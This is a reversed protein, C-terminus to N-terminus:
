ITIEKKGQIKYKKKGIKIKCEESADILYKNEYKKIVVIAPLDSKIEIEDSNLYKGDGLFYYNCNDSKSIVAYVGQVEVDGIIGKANNNEMSIILDERKNKHIVKIAAAGESESNIDPFAVSEIISPENKTVPEFISVFPKTWAEGNQRAVYTLTPQDSINYPMGETRCLGETFPSLATFVERDKMGKMWMQMTVDNGDPMNITYYGKVDKSTKTSRKDFIYSYAYLHAGAFALEQTPQLNLDNDEIDVLKFEQGMNHYFYDHMKDGGNIKRSRFIDVYYGFGEETTIISNLRTQKAHSEPEIFIVDSYNIGSIFDKSESAPYCSTLEFGHNSKMIPYSSVGDVCVTNHSPFQGYYELYDLGSYLTKGIGADPALPYGKGYLEMSIGNAHMHNGESGNLSIMLSREKDMGNRQVLWSVNPAWFTNSVYEEINGAPIDTDIILPKENFFTSIDVRSQSQNNMNKEFGPNFLRLLATFKQEQEKKNNYQANKIMGEFIDTRLKHPHTDGFGVAIMNPFLYQPTVEVAKEIIPFYETLDIGFVRDFINMFNVYDYVVNMSYGPSESWIGNDQDFGYEALKSLSWQRISSDFLVYNIYYERGKEDSYNSNNQLVMAITLINHAQILNWNNHPVGNSIINEAWKKLAADYIAIREPYNREIYLHLFDYLSTIPALISEHIVEFSTMGVLTQQHGNNLDHPIDRYYIGQLYTDLVNFAMDGYKSDETLWWMFACDRAVYMIDRNADAIQCGTKSISAWEMPAGPLSRNHMWVGRADECYPIRDEIKPRGYITSHNRAGNFMVTPVVCTDGGSKEYYEGKIFVSKAKSNWHMMLRSSLWDANNEAHFDTKEKLKIFINNAWNESEIKRLIDDKDSMNCNIRPYGNELKSYDPRKQANGVLVVNIYLLGTLIIKKM